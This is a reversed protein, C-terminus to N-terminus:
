NITYFLSRYLDKLFLSVNKNILSMNLYKVYNLNTPGNFHKDSIDGLGNPRNKLDFKMCHLDEFIYLYRYLGFFM